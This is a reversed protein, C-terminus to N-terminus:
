LQKLYEVFDKETKKLYYLLRSIDESHTMDGLEVKGEKLADLINDCDGLDHKLYDYEIICDQIHYFASEVVSKDNRLEELVGLDEAVKLMVFLSTLPM